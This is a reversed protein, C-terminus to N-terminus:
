IYSYITTLRRITKDNSRDMGITVGKKKRKKFTSHASATNGIKAEKKCQAM